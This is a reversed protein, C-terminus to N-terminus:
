QDPLVPSVSRYEQFVIFVLMTILLVILTEVIKKKSKQNEVINM